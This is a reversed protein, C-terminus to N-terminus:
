GAIPSLYVQGQKLLTSGNVASTRIGFLQSQEQAAVYMPANLQQRAAVLRYGNAIQAVQRNLALMSYAPPTAEQAQIPHSPEAFSPAIVSATVQTSRALSSRGHHDRFSKGLQAVRWKSRTRLSSNCHLVQLVFRERPTWAQQAVRSHHRLM